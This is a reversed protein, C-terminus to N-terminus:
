RRGGGEIKVDVGLREGYSKIGAGKSGIFQGLQHEPVKVFLMARRHVGGRRSEPRYDAYQITAALAPPVLTRLQEVLRRGERAAERIEVIQKDWLPKAEAVKNSVTADHRTRHTLATLTRHIWEFDLALEPKKVGRLNHAFGLLGPLRENRRRLSAGSIIQFLVEDPPLARVQSHHSCRGLGVREGGFVQWRSAHRTCMRRGCRRFDPSVHECRVSGVDPCSRTDCSPFTVEYCSPCYEVDPDRPHRKRHADCWAKEGRCAKGACRFTAATGCQCASRHRPCTPVLSGDLIVVHEDCVRNAGDQPCAKCLFPGYTGEGPCHTCRYRLRATERVAVISFRTDESVVETGAPLRVIELCLRGDAGDLEHVPRSSLDRGALAPEVSMWLDALGAPTSPAQRLGRLDLVVEVDSTM